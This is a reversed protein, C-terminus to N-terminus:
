TIQCVSLSAEQEQHFLYQWLGAPNEMPFPSVAAEPDKTKKWYISSM